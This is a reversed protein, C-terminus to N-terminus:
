ALVESEHQERISNLFKVADEDVFGIGETEILHRAAILIVERVEDEPINQEVLGRRLAGLTQATPFLM